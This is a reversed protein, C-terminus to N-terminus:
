ENKGDEKKNKKTAIAVGAFAVACGAVTFAITGAGGTAPLKFKPSNTIEMKVKANTSVNANGSVAEGVTSINQSEMATASGDVTASAREGNTEICATHGEDQNTQKAVTDYLTTRSPEFEDVTEKIKITIPEKLLTYGDDTTLEALVYEDAELGNIILTGDSSPTFQTAQKEAEEESVQKGNVNGYQIKSDDVIYYIGSGAKDQRAVMYHGDTKNKLSFTVKTMDGPKTDASGEFKKTINLGYSFVRSKDELTDENAMNSRRWTLTVDNRNGFDGMITSSDSNVKASYSVVMWRGSFDSEEQDTGDTHNLKALGADTMEVRCQSAKESAANYSVRFNENGTWHDVAKETNNARADAENDYFYISLDRNYTLGKGIVDVFTYETLHTASSTIKPLHSVLIYDDNEGESSTATDDYEPRGYSVDDHQRVLKDLDPINTQNKPYAHVDYFWDTSEDNTMPLSVFFPDVTSTVNAPVKTEIILYLGVDLNDAHSVGNVDTMPMAQHGNFGMVYKELQNKTYTNSMLAIKIADNIEGSTHRHDGRENTLGLITELGQPITYMVQVKGGVTETSIDGVRMYTFEVGEIKYNALEAEAAANQAGTAKYKDKDFGKATAATIDYKHITLSCKHNTDITSSATAAFVNVAPAAVMAAALATMSLKKAITNHKM